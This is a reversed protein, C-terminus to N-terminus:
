KKGTIFAIVISIITTGGVICAAKSEHIYGLFATTGLATLAFILGFWQGTNLISLKTTDLNRRSEAEKSTEDMYWKTIGPSLQEAEKLYEIPPLIPSDHTDHQLVVETDKTRVGLKANKAM